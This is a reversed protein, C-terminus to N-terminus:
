NSTANEVTRAASVPTRLKLLLRAMDSGQVDVLRLVEQELANPNLFGSIALNPFGLVENQLYKLHQATPVKKNPKNPLGLNEMPDKWNSPEQQRIGLAM